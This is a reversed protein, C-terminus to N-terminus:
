PEIKKRLEEISKESENVRASTRFTLAIIGVVVISFIVVLVTM